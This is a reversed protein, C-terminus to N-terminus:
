PSARGLRVSMALTVVIDPVRTLVVLGGNIAGLLSGSCCCSSSSPSASSRARSLAADADRRRREHAGDDLRDLPRHRRRDRRDGPRGRRARPAPGLQGPAPDPTVGYSPQIFRTFLLLLVLFGVLGSRGPTASSGCRARCRRAPAAPETRLHRGDVRDDDPGGRSTAAPVPRRTPSSATRARHGSTTPPACSRRVRRRRRGAIEAVVRGGFIVIARDCVLQIEKLESTYLLVGRGGRRPRPAARLDPEQHPHRHRADPRLLADDARGRRGLPRDDGEAPQRGVPPPGRRRGARRDPAYRGGGDVGAPRAALNILGWRPSHASSFPLAINERVSRQMLLAEARDAACTCSGPASPTRRITAPVQRALRGRPARRPTPREAGSSSRSCSTRARARSPSSGWCRARSPPRVLRRALKTGAALDHAALRPVHAPRAADSRGRRSRTALRRRGRGADARRDAGGLGERRRRGRRDRGRAPRDCPRLRVAIEIMRHSIFIVSRDTGRM